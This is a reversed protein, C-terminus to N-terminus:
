VLGEKKEWNEMDKHFKDTISISWTAAKGIRVSGTRGVWFNRVDDSYKLYRKSKTDEQKCELYDELYRIVRDRLTKPEGKRKGRKFVNYPM